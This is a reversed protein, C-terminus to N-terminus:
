IETKGTYTLADDLTIYL